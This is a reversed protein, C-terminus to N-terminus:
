KSIVNNIHQCIDLIKVAHTIKELDVVNVGHEDKNKEYINHITGLALMQAKRVCETINSLQMEDNALRNM